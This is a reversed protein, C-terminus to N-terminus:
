SPHLRQRHRRQKRCVTWRHRIRLRLNLFVEIMSRLPAPGRFLYFPSRSTFGGSLVIADVGAAELREAVGIAEALELGGRFGDSLNTKALVACEPGVRERVRGLVAVPLRM